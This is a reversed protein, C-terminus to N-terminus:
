ECHAFVKGDNIEGSVTFRGPTKGPLVGPQGIQGQRRAALAVRAAKTVPKFTYRKVPPQRTRQLPRGSGAFQGPKVILRPDFGVQDFPIVTIILPTPRHFNM